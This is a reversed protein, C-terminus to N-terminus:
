RTVKVDPTLMLGKHEDFFLPFSSRPVQPLQPDPQPPYALRISRAIITARIMM